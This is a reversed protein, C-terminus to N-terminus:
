VASRSTLARRFAYVESAIFRPQKRGPTVFGAEQLLPQRQWWAVGNSDLSRLGNPDMGLVAAVQPLTLARDLEAVKRECANLVREATVQLTLCYRKVHDRSRPAGAELADLELVSMGTSRAMEGVSVGKELRIARPTETRLRVARVM